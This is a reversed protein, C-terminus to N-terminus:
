CIVNELWKIAESKSIWGTWTIKTQVPASFKKLNDLLPGDGIVTLHFNYNKLEILAQILINLAKGTTIMGSWVLNLCRVGDYNRNSQLYHPITVLGTEQMLEANANWHVMQNMTRQDVCWVIKAEEAARRARNSIRIQLENTVHKLSQMLFEKGKFYRIFSFPISHFGNIPGWIFPVDLKWLYGPERFGIM